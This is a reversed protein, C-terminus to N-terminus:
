LVRLSHSVLNEARIPGLNFRKAKVTLIAEGAGDKSRLDSHDSGGAGINYGFLLDGDIVGWGM